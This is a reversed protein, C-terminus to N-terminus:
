FGLLHDITTQVATSIAASGGFLSSSALGSRVASLYNSTSAPLSTPYTLLLPGGLRALYAGGSM